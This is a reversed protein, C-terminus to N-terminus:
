KLNNTIESFNRVILDPQNFNSNIVEKKDIDTEGMEYDQKSNWYIKIDKFKIQGYGRSGHGGIYDSELLEMAEFVKELRDKDVEDLVTYIMEFEFKAGQPVREIQRPTTSSTVRDIVNEWKVETWELEINKKVEDPISSEILNADRVILRTPTTTEIEFEEGNIKTQKGKSRGFINCVSCDSEDCMHISVEDKKVWVRNEDTALGEVKELLSRLKGKLSSGPIYPRGRPDTIVGRDVGGIKLGTTPGGIHLGTLVEIEGKIIVKGSLKLEM